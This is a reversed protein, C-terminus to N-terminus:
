VGLAWVEQDDDSIIKAEAVTTAKAGLNLRRIDVIESKLRAGNAERIIM